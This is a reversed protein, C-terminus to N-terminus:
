IHGYAILLALNSDLNRSKALKKFIIQVVHKRHSLEFASDASITLTNKSVTKLLKVPKM